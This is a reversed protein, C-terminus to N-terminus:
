TFVGPRKESIARLGESLEPGGALRIMGAAERDLQDAFSSGHSERLLTRLIGLTQRPGAAVRRARVMVADQFAEGEETLAATVLGLSVAEAPQIPTNLMLIETAKRIGCLRPLLWTAGGDGCLGIGTYAPVLRAKPALYSFDAVLALSLGAGAAPGQVAAVIPADYALLHQLARHFTSVLEAIYDAAHRPGEALAAGFAKIDGGGCFLNGTARLLIVRATREAHLQDAAEHLAQSMPVDIANGSAPRNLTLIAVPGDHTVILSSEQM